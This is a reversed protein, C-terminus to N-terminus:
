ATAAVASSLARRDHTARRGSSTQMYKREVEELMDATLTVAAERNGAAQRACLVAKEVLKDCTGISGDGLANAVDLLHEVADSALRVKPTQYLQVIEDRSFLRTNGGGDVVDSGGLVIVAGVRRKWQGHDQDADAQIRQWLDITCLILIPIHTLDYLDRVFAMGDNTLEHGEDLILLRGSDRLVEHIREDVPLDRINRQLRAHRTSVKLLEAMRTCLRGYSRLRRTLRMYIAGTTQEYIVHSTMTKGVGSPGVVLVIEGYAQASKAADIIKRAVKTRVFKKDPKTARHRADAEMWLNLERLHADINGVKRDTMARENLLNYVTTAGLGCRRAVQAEGLDHQQMHARVAHIVALRQEPSLAGENPIIVAAMLQRDEQDGILLDAAQPTGPRDVGRPTTM